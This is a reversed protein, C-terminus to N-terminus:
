YENLLNKNFDIASLILNIRTYDKDKEPVKQLEYILSKAREIKYKSLMKQLKIMEPDFNDGYLYETTKM